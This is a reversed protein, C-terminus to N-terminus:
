LSGFVKNFKVKLSDIGTREIQKQEYELMWDKGSDSIEILEDLEDHFGEKFLGGETLEQPPDEVIARDIRERLDDLPDLAEGLEFLYDSRCEDLWSEFSPIIINDAWNVLIAERDFTDEDLGSTSSDSCSWVVFLSLLILATKKM